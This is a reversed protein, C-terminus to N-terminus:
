DNDEDDDGYGGGGSKQQNTNGSVGRLELDKTFEYSGEGGQKHQQGVNRNSNANDFESHSEDLQEYNLVAGSNIQENQQVDKVGEKTPSYLYQLFWIYINSIGFVLIVRTGNQNYIRVSGSFLFLFYCFIFYCSFSFFMRHRWIIGNWKKLIMAFGYLIWILGICIILIMIIKTANFTDHHDDDFDFGPDNRYERNLINYTIVSFLWLLLTYAWKKKDMIASRQNANESYIREFMCIWFLLLACIFTLVFSSSLFSIFAGPALVTAGYLPDNFLILMVSLWKIYKQEFVLKTRPIKNIARFYLICAVLSFIVLFYRTALLFDTYKNSIMETYAGFTRISERVESGNLFEIVILYNQYDIEPIFVVNKSTCKEAETDFCEFEIRHESSSIDKGISLDENLAYVNVKLDVVLAFKENATIADFRKFPMLDVLLFQNKAGLRNKQVALIPPSDNMNFQICM